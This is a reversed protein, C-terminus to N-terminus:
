HTLRRKPHMIGFKLRIRKLLETLPKGIKSINPNFRRYYGASGLFEKLELTTTPKPYDKVPKISKKDPKIGTQGIVHGLYSVERRLFECKDPQLKLDHQRMGGFVERLRQNHTNLNEGFLVDDLYVLCEIGQIGSLVTTM